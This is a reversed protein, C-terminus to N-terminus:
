ESLAVMADLMEVRVRDAVSRDKPEEWMLDCAGPAELVRGAASALLTKARELAPGKQGAEEARAIRDRLMVLTEYDGASERIAEMQKSGTVSSPELFLPTYCTTHAMAYENWSSGGGSDSFAWFHSARAGAQWATWAQLRFYSYPDALRSGINCSYFALEMGSAQQRAFYDRYAPSSSLYRPRNPCLVHCLRIMEPNAKLPDPHCVDEFLRVGTNAARIARAWPLILNDRLEEAPEDVLLILLQEPRLGRTKAHEAWFAVWERVNADFEPTGMKAGGIREGVSAFVCYQRAGPWLRLWEDFRATDQDHPLVSATAWPSDVFHERLLRIFAERNEPTVDRGKTSDSYDWGGLHLSPQPPFPLPYVRVTLPLTLTTTPGAISITGAHTGPSVGAAHVSLWVQRTMGSPVHILFADGQKPAEPLAAAVPIGKRTDTWAVEHVAVWSPNLGGPLGAIQLRLEAATDGANRINLAGSRYEDRMMAVSVGGEGSSPLGTLNLPEWPNAPAATLQASGQARWLMAQAQFVREHLTNLPLTARALPDHEMAMSPLDREVADLAAFMQQSPGSDLKAAAERVALLDKRIRQEFAAHLQYAKVDTVGQGSYPISLWEPEGPHIEIEDVFTYPGGPAVLFTVYRGHTRLDTTHFCHIAYDAPAAGHKMSLNVLEGVPHHSKGDDSVLLVISAPWSVGARGAATNFSAGRIPQVAGLDVTITVGGTSRWGVTSKQTWFHGETFAGDTLQTRDDPDTCHSYNPRPNLTYSKGLAINEAPQGTAGSLASAFAIVPILLPPFASPRTM